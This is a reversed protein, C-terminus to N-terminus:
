WLEVHERWMAVDLPTVAEGGLYLRKVTPIERPDVTRAVSPTLFLATTGFSSISGALNEMREEYSPICLCAGAVLSNFTHWINADFAHSSFDYVRDSPVFGLDRTQAVAASAINSHTVMVGKPTGTSGSTFCVYMTQKPDRPQVQQLLTRGTLSTNACTTYDVVFVDKALRKALELQTSSTLVVRAELSQSIAKLRIEPYSVDMVSFAAGTKLVALMAVPVLFSKEFCLPVFCAFGIGRSVLQSAINTSFEDLERYTMQGDHGLVATKEPSKQAQEAILDHVLENIAEPSEANWNWIQILDRQNALELNRLTTNISSTCLSHFISDTQQLLFDVQDGTIASDRFLAEAVLGKGNQQFIIMLEWSNFNRVDDITDDIHFILDDASTSDENEQIVLLTQFNCAAKADESIRAINQLGLHEFDHMLISMERANDLLTRITQERDMHVLVPVSAITPGRMMEIGKIPVNRGLRMEGFLVTEGGTHRAMLVAWSARLLVATPYGSPLAKPLAFERRKITSTLTNRSTLPIKPFLAADSAGTLNSRWWKQSQIQQSRVFEVFLKYDPGPELAKQQHYTSSVQRLILGITWSDYVAHHISWAITCGSSPNSGNRVLAFRSLQSGPWMPKNTVDNLYGDISEYWQWDQEERIVVQMLSGKESQIIRTRLIPNSAIVLNWATLVRSLCIKDSFRLELHQVYASADSSTQAFVGEQFPTCPFIDLIAEPKVNCSIAASTILAEREGVPTLSFPQITDFQDRSLNVNGVCKTAIDCLKEFRSYRFVDAVTFSIGQQRSFKVLRMASISDGGIQFFDSTRSIKTPELRLAHSWAEVMRQQKDDLETEEIVVKQQYLCLIDDRSVCSAADRLKRRDVKRTTTLPLHTMSLYVAPIMYSPLNEKLRDELGAPMPMLKILQKSKEESKTKKEDGRDHLLFACILSTEGFTVVDVVVDRITQLAHRIRFEIENLEVRQGNIKVQANKRGIYIITGDPQYRVLDGTRYLVGRRGPIKKSGKLLWSPDRIFADDQANLYGPSVIPGEVCLEGEWGIPSLNGSEPDIIWTSCGVGRGIKACDDPTLLRRQVTCIQCEAPGYANILNVKAAWQIVLDKAVAEGSLVLTKLSPVAPPEILRAVSPTLDAWNARLREFSGEIDNERDSESPICLCGGLALAMLGNHVAIDFSYSAYDYIRSTKSLQLEHEHYRITTCFNEHTIIIGKPTGTSGSTFVVFATDSPSPTTAPLVHHHNLEEGEWACVIVRTSLRRALGAAPGATVVWDARVESIIQRLRKEPQQRVDMAVFGAGVRMIGLMAVPAWMSKEMCIPVLSGRGVGNRSLTQALRWALKDLAEFTMSGDWACIAEATPQIRITRAIVDHICEHSGEICRSNWKWVTEVDVDNAFGLTRLPRELNDLHCIEKAVHAFQDLLLNIQATNLVRDDFSAQVIMNGKKQTILVMLAYENFNSLSTSLDLCELMRKLDREAPAIDPCPEIPTANPPHVIFLTQFKSGERSDSNIKRINQLGMNEFPVAELAEDQIRSVFSRVTEAGTLTVRVPITSITPSLLDEIGAIPVNRGSITVGFTVDDSGSLQAVLLAWAARYVSPMSVGLNDNAPVVFTKSISAEANPEWVSYPVVPFITTKNAEALRRAWFDHAPKSPLKGLHKMFVNFGVSPQIREGRYVRFVEAGIRPLTWGDYIAHHITLVFYTTKAERVIGLRCLHTGLGMKNGDDEKLYDALSKSKTGLCLKSVKLVVQLLGHPETDVIRTRLIGHVTAVREWALLLREPDINKPLALIGRGVYTATRPVGATILGEQMPTCPYADEINDVSTSCRMALEALVQKDELLSFREPCDAALNVALRCRAALESLQPYRFITAVDIQMGKRAATSVLRIAKLSEGGLGFFTDSSRITESSEINLVESWLLKMANLKEHSSGSSGMLYRYEHDQDNGIINMPSIDNPLDITGTFDVSNTKPFLLRDDTLSLAIQKLKKHDTKGTMTLPIEDIHAYLGPVMVPPLKRKLEQNILNAMIHQSDFTSGWGGRPPVLFVTLIEAGNKLKVLEPYWQIPTPILKQLHAALEGLEVRQGRIKVQSDKRGIFEIMGDHTYRVLDGTRYLRGRRGSSVGPCGKLLWEPDEFFPSKTSNQDDLYGLGVQPGELVLEGVGGVPSLRESDIPDMIWCAGLGKGIISPRSCKLVDENAVATVTCEAPGYTNMVRTESGRWKALADESCPEGCLELVQLTRMESPQLIKSVSPTMQAYTIQYHGFVRTVDNQCEWSSPICLCAGSLLSIFIQGISVDFAYPSLALVRSSSSINAVPQMSSVMSCVNSHKIMVAKPIGTTGSTFVVYILDSPEMLHQIEIANAHPPGKTAMLDSNVVIINSAFLETRHLQANSTLALVPEQAVIQSLEQLRDGPLNEDLLVFAAGSKIVALIAVTTWMTKEFCLPVIQGKRVGALVLLSSLANSLQDLEYYKLDGDWANVAIREPQHRVYKSFMGLVTRKGFEKVHSNWKWIECVDSKSATRLSYVLESGSRPRHVQHLVEGFQELVRCWQSSANTTASSPRFTVFIERGKGSLICELNFDIKIDKLYCGNTHPARLEM